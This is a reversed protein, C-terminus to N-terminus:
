INIYQSVLQEVRGRLYISGNSGKTWQQIVASICRQCRTPTWCYKHFSNTFYHIVWPPSLLDRLFFSSPQFGLHSPSLETYFTKFLPLLLHLFVSICVLKRHKFFLFFPMKAGLEGEDSIFLPKCIVITSWVVQVQSVTYIQGNYDETWLASPPWGGSELPMKLTEQSGLSLPPM